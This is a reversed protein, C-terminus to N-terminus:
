NMNAFLLPQVTLQHQRQLTESKLCLLNSETILLHIVEELRTQQSMVACLSYLHGWIGLLSLACSEVLSHSWKRNM